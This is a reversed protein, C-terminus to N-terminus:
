SLANDLTTIHGLYALDLVLLYLAMASLVRHVQVCHVNTLWPPWWHAIHSDGREPADLEILVGM